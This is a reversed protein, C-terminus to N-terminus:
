AAAPPEWPAPDGTMWHQLFSSLEDLYRKGALALSRRTKYLAYISVDFPRWGPLVLALRGSQLADTCLRLPLRAMGLGALAAMQAVLLNNTTLSPHVPVEEVAGQDNFLRFRTMQGGDWWGIGSAGALDAPHTVAPWSALWDPAAVLEYRSVLVRRAIAESDPLREIAASLIIDYGDFNPAKTGDSIDFTLDVGPYRMCFGVSFGSLPNVALMAPCSVRLAGRPMTLSNRAVQLAATGEALIAAGREALELGMPTPEFRRSTRDILTIGLNRELEALRRSLRSKTTGSIRSARTLGGAEVILSLLVLDDHINELHGGM